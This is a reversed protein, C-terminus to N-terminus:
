KPVCSHASSHFPHADLCGTGPTLNKTHGVTGICHCWHSSNEDRYKNQDFIVKYHVGRFSNPLLINKCIGAFHWLM